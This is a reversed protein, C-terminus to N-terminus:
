WRFFFDPSCLSVLNWVKCQRWSYRFSKCIATLDIAWTAFSEAILESWPFSHSGEHWLMIGLHWQGSSAQSLITSIRTSINKLLLIPPFDYYYQNIKMGSRATDASRMYHIFTICVFLVTHVVTGVGWDNFVGKHFQIISRLLFALQCNWLM